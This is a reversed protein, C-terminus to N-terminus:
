SRGPRPHRWTEPLRLIKGPHTPCRRSSPPDHGLLDPRIGPALGRSAPRPLLPLSMPSGRNPSRPRAPDGAHRHLYDVAILSGLRPALALGVLGTGCGYELAQMEKHLPLPTSIGAAIAKALEVRRQKKDWDAAAKDFRNETMILTRHISQFLDKDDEIKGRNGIIARHSAAQMQPLPRPSPRCIPSAPPSLRGLRQQKYATDIGSLYENRATAGRAAPSQLPDFSGYTGIILQEMISQPLDLGAISKPSPRTPRTPRASRRTATASAPLIAPSRASSSSVATPGAWRACPIGSIIAPSFPRSCRSIVTTAPQREAASCGGQVAFVVEASTIFAEHDPLDAHVPLDHPSVPAAALAEALSAPRPRRDPRNGEPRRHRGPDPQRPQLAPAAMEQLAPLSPRKWRPRLEPRTEKSGSLRDCRQVDRQLPRGSEPPCLGPCRGPQLRREPGLTRGLRIGPRRDGQDPDPRCLLCRFPDRRGAAPGAGPIGAPVQSAALARAPGHGTEGRKSYTTLSHSFGGTCTAIEKAFHMYDLKSPASRPSSPASSISGPCSSRRSAPFISASISIPSIIPPSSASWCRRASCRRRGSRMSISIPPHSRGTVAPAAPGPDRVDNPTQQM